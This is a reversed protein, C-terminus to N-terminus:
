KGTNRHIKKERRKKYIDVGSYIKFTSASMIAVQLPQLIQLAIIRLELENKKNQFMEKLMPIM